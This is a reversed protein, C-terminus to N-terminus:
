CYVSKAHDNLLTSDTGCLIDVHHVKQSLRLLIFVLYEDRVSNSYGVAKWSTDVATMLDNTDATKKLM